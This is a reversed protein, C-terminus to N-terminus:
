LMGIRRGAKSISQVVRSSGGERAPWYGFDRSRAGFGFNLVPGFHWATLAADLARLGLERELSRQFRSHRIISERQEPSAHTGSLQILFLSGFAKARRKRKPPHIDAIRGTAVAIKALLRSPDRLIDHRM